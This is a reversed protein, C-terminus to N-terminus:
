KLFEIDQSFSGQFDPNQNGGIYKDAAKPVEHKLYEQLQSNTLKGDKLGKLFYYTFLGHKMSELPYSVQDKTAASYVFTNSSALPKEMSLQVARTGKAIYEIRKNRGNKGSFCADLVLYIKHSSYRSLQKYLDSLLYGTDELAQADGDWPILYNKWNDDLKVPTGHGAYYIFIKKIEPNNRLKKKLKSGFNKKLGSYTADSDLLIKINEEPVGFFEKIYESVVYADRKAYTVVPLADKYNEIGIIIALIDNGSINRKPIEEIDINYPDLSIGALGEAIPDYFIEYIKESPKNQNDVAFIRIINKGKRLNLSGRFDYYWESLKKDERTQGNFIIKVQRLEDDDRVSIEPIYKSTSVRKVYNNFSIEPSKNNNQLNPSFATLSPLQTGEIIKTIAGLQKITFPAIKNVSSFDAQNVRAQLNYKGAKMGSPVDFLLTRTEMGSPPINGLVEKKPFQSQLLSNNTSVILQVDNADLGGKNKIKVTLEVSEGQEITASRNAAIITSEIYLKPEILHVPINENNTFGNFNTQTLEIKVPLIKKNYTRPIEILIDETNGKSNKKILDYSYNNKRIIAGVADVTMKVRTADLLGKNVPIIKIIFNQGNNIYQPTEVKYTLLPTNIATTLSEIQNLFASGLEESIQVKYDISTKDFTQPTSFVVKGKKTQGPMITGLNVQNSISNIQRSLFDTKLKSNIAKGVGSNKVYINLEVTEGNEPIGNGNGKARGTHADNIDISVIEFIPKNLHKVNVHLNIIKSDWGRKEIAKISFLAKGDKANLDVLLPISYEKESASPINGISKVDTIQIDHNNKEIMLKVDYGAGKGSNKIKIDLFAKEGGDLINNPFFSKKDNFTVDLSLSAPLSRAEKITPVEELDWVEAKNNSFGCALYQGDPSIGMSLVNVSSASLTAQQRLDYFNYINIQGLRNASFLHKSDPSLALANVSLESQRFSKIVNKTAIDYVIITGDKDASIIRTDDNSFIATTVPASHENHAALLKGTKTNWMKIEEDESGTIIVSGNHSFSICNIPASSAQWTNQISWSDTDWLMVAKDSSCSALVKGDPTFAIDTVRQKHGKLTSLLRYSPGDWVKITKDWSASAVITSNPKFAVDSIYDRHAQIKKNQRFYGNVGEWIILNSGGGTALLKSDSSFSVGNVWFNHGTLIKDGCLITTALSLILPVILWKKTHM